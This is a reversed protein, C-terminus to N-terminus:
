ARRWRKRYLRWLGALVAISIFGIVVNFTIPEGSVLGAFAAVAMAVAFIAVCVLFIVGLIKAGEEAAGAISDPDTRLHAGCHPCNVANQSIIGHCVKCNILSPM